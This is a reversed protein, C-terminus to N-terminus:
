RIPRGFGYYPHGPSVIVGSSLRRKEGKPSAPAPAAPPSWDVLAREAAKRASKAKVYAKELADVKVQEDDTMKPADAGPIAAKWTARAATAVATAEDVTQQLEAKTAM